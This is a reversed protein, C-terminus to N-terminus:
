ATGRQHGDLVDLLGPDAGGDVKEPFGGEERRRSREVGRLQLRHELRADLACEAGAIHARVEMGIQHRCQRTLANTKELPSWSSSSAHRTSRISRVQVERRRKRVPPQM